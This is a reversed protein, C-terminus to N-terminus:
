LSRDPTSPEGIKDCLKNTIPDRMQYEYEGTIVSLATYLALEDGSHTEVYEDNEEGRAYLPVYHKLLRALAECEVPSLEITIRDTM